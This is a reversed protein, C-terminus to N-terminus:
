VQSELASKVKSLLEALELPKRIFDIAGEKLIEQRNLSFGSMLLVPLEPAISRIHRLLYFGNPGPMVVDSLVLDFADKELLAMAATTDAVEDVQYGQTQLFFAINKRSQLRDEVLLIRQRM